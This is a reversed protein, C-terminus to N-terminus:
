ARVFVRAPASRYAPLAVSDLTAPSGAPAATEAPPVTNDVTDDSAMVYWVVAAAVLLALLIWLWALSGRKQEVRIEAM